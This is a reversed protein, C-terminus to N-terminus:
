HPDYDKIVYTIKKHTPKDANNKDNKPYLGLSMYGILLAIGFIILKEM